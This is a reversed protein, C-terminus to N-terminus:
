QGAVSEAVEDVAAGVARIADALQKLSLRLNKPAGPVNMAQIVFATEASCGVPNCFAITGPHIGVALGPRDPVSVADDVRSAPTTVEAGDIILRVTDVVDQSTGVDATITWVVSAQLPLPTQAHAFGAWLGVSLIMGFLRLVKFVKLVSIRSIRSIRSEWLNGDM